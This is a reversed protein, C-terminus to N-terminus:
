VNPFETKEKGTSCTSMNKPNNDSQPSGVLCKLVKTDRSVDVSMEAVYLLFQSPEKSARFSRFTTSDSPVCLTSVALYVTM